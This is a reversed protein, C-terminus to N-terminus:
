CNQYETQYFDINELIQQSDFFNSKTLIPHEVPSLFWIKLFKDSNLPHTNPAFYRYIIIPAFTAKMGRKAGAKELVAQWM